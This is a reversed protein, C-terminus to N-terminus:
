RLEGDACGMHTRTIALRDKPGRRLDLEFTLEYQQDNVAALVYARDVANSLLRAGEDWRWVHRSLGNAFLDGRADKFIAYAKQLTALKSGDTWNKRKSYLRTVKGDRHFIVIDLCVVAGSRREDIKNLDFAASTCPFQKSLVAKRGTHQTSSM